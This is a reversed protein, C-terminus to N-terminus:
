RLDNIVGGDKVPCTVWFYMTCRTKRIQCNLGQALFVRALTYSKWSFGANYKLQEQKELVVVPKFNRKVMFFFHLATGAAQLTITNKGSTM